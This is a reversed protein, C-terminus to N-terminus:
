PFLIRIFIIKLFNLIGNVLDKPRVGSFRTRYDTVKEKPKVFKDLLVHGFQNVISVRALVSDKGQYGVGVFECDIAVHKTPSFVFNCM